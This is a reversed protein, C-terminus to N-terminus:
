LLLHGAELGPALSGQQPVPDAERLALLLLSVVFAECRAPRRAEVSVAWTPRARELAVAGRRPRLSCRGASARDERTSAPPSRLPRPLVPVAFDGVAHRPTTPSIAEGLSLPH